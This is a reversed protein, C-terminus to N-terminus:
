DTRYLNYLWFASWRLSLFRYSVQKHQKVEVVKTKATLDSLNCSIRMQPTVLMTVSVTVSGAM